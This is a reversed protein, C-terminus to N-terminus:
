LKEAKTIVIKREVYKVYDLCFNNLKHFTIYMDNDPQLANM